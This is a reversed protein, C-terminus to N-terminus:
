YHDGYKRSLLVYVAGTGGDWRPATNFALVADMQMLWQHTKQKLVPQKESSGAGKGHIIRVCRIRRQLCQRIFRSFAQRAETVRMGHLDLSEEPPILGRQLDQFVRKQIGPRCFELFDPTDIPLDGLEADPDDGDSLNLPRPPPKRVKHDVKDENTKPEVGAMAELFFASDDDKDNSSM